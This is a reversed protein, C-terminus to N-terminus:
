AQCAGRHCYDFLLQWERLQIQCCLDAVTKATQGSRAAECLDIWRYPDWVAQSVLFETAREPQAASALEAAAKRLPEYVAHQGVRQFWYKSNEPDPERRHMIGHWYSGESSEIEQSITHSEHLFDHRLWLAARCAAALDPDHPRCM